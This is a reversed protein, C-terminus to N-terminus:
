RLTSHVDRYCVIARRQGGLPILADHTKLVLNGPKHMLANNAVDVSGAGFAEFEVSCEGMLKRVINYVSTTGCGCGGTVIVKM